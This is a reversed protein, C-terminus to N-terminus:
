TNLAAGEFLTTQALVQRFATTTSPRRCAKEGPMRLGDMRRRRPSVQSRTRGVASTRRVQDLRLGLGTKWAVRTEHPAHTVPTPPRQSRGSGVGQRRQVPGSGAPPHPLMVPSHMLNARFVGPELGARVQETGAVWGYTFDPEWGNRVNVGDPMRRRMLADSAVASAANIRM